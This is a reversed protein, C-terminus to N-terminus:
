NGLLVKAWSYVKGNSDLALSFDRGASVKIITKGALVGSTNVAVPVNSSINTGNGLQGSSNSGWTYVTGDSALAISHAADASIDIIHKGFLVGSTNVAVPVNSNINTGNGLQGFNNAGWSYVTGDSALALVHNDGAAIKVITKGAL